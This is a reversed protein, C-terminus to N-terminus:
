PGPVGRARLHRRGCGGGCRRPRAFPPVTVQGSLGFGWCAVRGAADLACPTITARRSTSSRVSGLATGAAEGTIWDGWRHARRGPRARLHPKGWASLEVIPRLTSPVARRDGSTTGGVASWEGAGDLACTHREGAAIAVVAGLGAPRARDRSIAGGAPSEGAADLACAHASGAAIAVSGDLGEPVMTQGQDNRGVCVVAGTLGLACTFEAGAAIQAFPGAEAPV